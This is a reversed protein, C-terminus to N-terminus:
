FYQPGQEPSFNHTTPTQVTHGLRSQKGGLEVAGGDGQHESQDSQAKWPEQSLLPFQAHSAGHAPLSHWFHASSVLCYGLQLVVTSVVVVEVPAVDLEPLEEVEALPSEDVEVDPSEVLEVPLVFVVEVEVVPDEVEPGAPVVVVPDAWAVVEEVPDSAVVEVPADPAVVVEVPAVPSAEVV